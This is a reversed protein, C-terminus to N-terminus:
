EGMLEKVIREVKEIAIEFYEDINEKSIVTLGNLQELEVTKDNTELFEIEYKSMQLKLKEKLKDYEKCYKDIIYSNIKIYDEYVDQSFEEILHISNDKLYVIRDNEIHLALKPIYKEYWLLDEILHAIYGLRIENDMKGKLLNVADDVVPLKQRGKDTVITKLFHTGIRDGTEMKILDPMISGYIFKTSLNLRKRVIESIGIHMLFSGM